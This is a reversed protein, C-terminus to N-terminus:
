DIQLLVRLGQEFKERSWDKIPFGASGINNKVILRMWLFQAPMCFAIEHGGQQLEEGLALFPEM